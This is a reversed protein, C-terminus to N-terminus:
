KSAPATSVAPTAESPASPTAAPSSQSQAPESPPMYLPGRLGCATLGLPLLVAFLYKSFPTIM